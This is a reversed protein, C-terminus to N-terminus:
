TKFYITIITYENIKSDIEINGELIEVFSKIIKFGLGSNIGNSSREIESINSSNMLLKLKMEESIGKGYDKVTIKYQEIGNKFMTEFSVEIKTNPKTNKISNSILNRLITSIIRYDTNIMKEDKVIVLILINKEILDFQFNEKIEDILKLFNIQEKFINIQFTNAISWNLLNDLFYYSQFAVRNMETLFLKLKELEINDLRNLILTSINKFSNISNKLDHSIVQIFKEKTSLAHNLQFNLNELEDNQLFLKKNLKRYQIYLTLFAISSFLVVVIIVILYNIIQQKQQKENYLTQKEKEKIKTKSEYDLEKLKEESEKYKLSDDMNKFKKWYDLALQYKGMGEYNNSLLFYITRLHNISLNENNYEQIIKNLVDNSNKYNKTQSLIQSLTIKYNIQVFKNDCNQVSSSINKLVEKASHIDGKEFFVESLQISSNLFIIELNHKKSNEIALTYYKISKDIDKLSKYVNGINYYVDPIQFKDIVKNGFELVKFYYSLAQNFDKLTYYLGAINQYAALIDTTDNNLISYNLYNYFEAISEKYKGQWFKLIGLNNSVASLGKDDGIKQKIGKSKTLYFLASDYQNFDIYNLGLNTYVKSLNYDNSAKKFVEISKYYNSFSNQYKNLSHYHNGLQLYIKGITTDNIDIPNSYYKKIINNLKIEIKELEINETLNLSDLIKSFEDELNTTNTKQQCSDIFILLILFIIFKM